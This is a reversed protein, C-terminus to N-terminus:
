PRIQPRTSRECHVDPPSRDLLIVSTFKFERREEIRGFKALHDIAAQRISEDPAIFAVWVRNEGTPLGEDLFQWADPCHRFYYTFEWHNAVIADTPLRHALIYEAAGAADARPWPVALNRLTLGAPSLILALALVFGWRTRGRLWDLAAEIGAGMMLALGPVAFVELRSGGYPYGHLCAAFWALALSSLVLFVGTRRGVRWIAVVGVLGLVALLNGWPMFGYRFVEFTNAVSWIPVTWPKSWTPFHGTWCQEIPGTRQARMPGFYLLTFASLVVGVWAIYLLRERTGSRVAAPLWALMLGGCVFCAPYSLFMMAPSVFIVVLLRRALPWSATATFFWLAAAGLMGDVAYPKAECAHWLLRDSVAVLFVAWLAARESLLRRAADAVLFMTALSALLPVFRLAYTSDGLLRAIAREVWLFMVPAAENWRLAGLLQNFDLSLVNDILAAEDHWVSPNRLYHVLRLVLGFATLLRLSKSM